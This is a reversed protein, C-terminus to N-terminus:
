FWKFTCRLGKTPHLGIRQTVDQFVGKNNNQTSEGKKKKFILCSYVHVPESVYALEMQARCRLCYPASWKAPKEATNSPKEQLFYSRLFCNLDNRWADKWWTRSTLLPRHQTAMWRCIICTYGATWPEPERRRECRTGSLLVLASCGAHVGAAAALPERGAAEVRSTRFIDALLDPLRTFVFLRSVTVM